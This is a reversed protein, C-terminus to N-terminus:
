QQSKVSPDTAIVAHSSAEDAAAPTAGLVNVAITYKTVLDVTMAGGVGIGAKMTHDKQLDAKGNDIETSIGGGVEDSVEVAGQTTHQIGTKIASPFEAGEVVNANVGLGVGFRGIASFRIGITGTTDAVFRMELAGGSLGGMASLSIGYSATVPHTDIYKKFASGAQQTSRWLDGFASRGNPDTLTLPNDEVYEYRNWAQPYHMARDNAPPSDVTLFRGPTWTYYRAHMYDLSTDREHGTFKHTEPDQTKDTLEEGFPYYTHRSVVAGTGSTILRPTGLHDPFFHLTPIPGSTEAALLHGNGYIYDEKWSWNHTGGAGPTDDFERLVDNGLGRITWRYSLPTVTASGPAGSVAITGIREDDANYVYLDHQPGPGSIERMMNLGDYAYSTAPAISVVNGAPDTTGFYNAGPQVPVLRNTTLEVAPLVEKTPDMDTKLDILNGMADYSFAQKHGSVSAYVLRSLGDYTYLDTGIQTINGAGDYVFTGSTWNPVQAQVRLAAFLLVLAILLRKTTIV